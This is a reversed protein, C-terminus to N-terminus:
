CSSREDRVVLDVCLQHRVAEGKEAEALNDALALRRRHLVTLDAPEHGATCLEIAERLREFRYRSAVAM